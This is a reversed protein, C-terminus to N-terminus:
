DLGFLGYYEIRFFCKRWKVDYVVMRIKFLYFNVFLLFGMFWLYKLFKEKFCVSDGVFLKCYNDCCLELEIIDM